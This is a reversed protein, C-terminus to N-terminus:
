LGTSGFGGGRDQSTDLDTVLKLEIDPIPIIVLQCVRDREKYVLAYNKSEIGNETRVSVIKDSVRFRVMVEDRYGSDIVGVSNALTMDTKSISSRPFILGVYGEPIELSFGLRYERYLESHVIQHAYCDFGADTPNAKTPMQSDEYLLKLKVQM